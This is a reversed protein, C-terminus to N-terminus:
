FFPTKLIWEWGPGESFHNEEKLCQGYAAHNVNHILEWIHGLEQDCHVAGVSEVDKGRELSLRGVVQKKDRTNIDDEPQM